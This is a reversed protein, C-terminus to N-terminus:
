RRRGVALLHASVGLLTAETEIAAVIELLMARRKKDALRADLDGLLWGPGEIALTAEHVLGALAFEEALESPYHFYATTFYRRDGTPNRHQGDVRDRQAIAAFTPDELYGNVLGDLVSAFRSIAAALIVGGSKCVRRGEALAQVRDAQTVLHYLPGLVLVADMSEDPFSLARADGVEASVLTGRTLTRAAERAQDIHLPVADVLHVSYGREALWIAYRGPGGGIDAVVAPSPPLFRSLLIQTRAFELAGAGVDFRDREGGRAYFAVVDNPESM